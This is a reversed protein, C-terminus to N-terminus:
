SQYILMKLGNKVCYQWRLYNKLPRSFRWPNVQVRWLGGGHWPATQERSLSTLM